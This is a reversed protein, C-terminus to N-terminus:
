QLCIFMSGLCFFNNLLKVVQFVYLNIVNHFQVYDHNSHFHCFIIPEYHVKIPLILSVNYCSFLLESRLSPPVKIFEITNNSMKSLTKLHLKSMITFGVVVMKRSRAVSFGLHHTNKHFLHTKFQQIRKNSKHCKAHPLFDFFCFNGLFVQLSGFLEDVKQGVYYIQKLALKKGFSIANQQSSLLAIFNNM